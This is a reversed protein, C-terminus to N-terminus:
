TVASPTAEDAAAFRFQNSGGARAARMAAGAAQILADPGQADRPYIAVGISAGIPYRDGFQPLLPAELAAILREALAGVAEPEGSLPTLIVFEDSGFRALVDSERVRERFRRGVVRLLRDGIEQGEADNIRRFGDLDVYLLALQAQERRARALARASWQLFYRRNPLGTLSDHTSEYQLREGLQSRAWVERLLMAAAYALLAGGLGLLLWLHQWLRPGRTALQDEVRREAASTSDLLIDLAAAPSAAGPQAAARLLALRSRAEADGAHLDALANLHPTAERWAPAAAPGSELLLRRVAQLEARVHLLRSQDAVAADFDRLDRVYLLASGALILLGALLPTLIGSASSFRKM